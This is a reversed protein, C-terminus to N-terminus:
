QGARVPLAYYPTVKMGEIVFAGEILVIWAYTDGAATTSSWYFDSFSGAKMNNFGQTNLWAASNAQSHNVLSRLEKRNPLRWDSYTLYKKSNLCTVYDLAQQWTKTGGTCIDFAPTGGDGAWMLGTLNDSVVTGTGSSVPSFRPNPWAVGIKLAGDDAINTNADYSTAQGTRALKVSTKTWKAYLTVNASGMTFTAGYATGNGDAQTNWSAFSYGTKVLSGTNGLVTVTQGATYDTTDNPASGGTNGNGDYTVTYTTATTTASDGGGGGGCNVLVLSAILVIAAVAMFSFKMKHQTSM